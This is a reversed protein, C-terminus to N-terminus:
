KVEVEWIKGTTIDTLVIKQENSNVHVHVMVPELEKRLATAIQAFMGNGKQEFYRGFERASQIEANSREVKMKVIGNM